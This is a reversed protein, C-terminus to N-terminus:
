SQWLINEDCKIIAIKQGKKGEKEEKGGWITGKLSRKKGGARKRGKGGWCSAAEL